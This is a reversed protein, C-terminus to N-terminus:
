EIRGYRWAHLGQTKIRASTYARNQYKEALAQIVMCSKGSGPEVAIFSNTARDTYFQRENNGWGNGGIDYVWNTRSITPGNFEDAWVLEWNSTQAFVSTSIVMLFSVCAKTRM